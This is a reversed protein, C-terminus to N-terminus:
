LSIYTSKAYSDTMGAIYHAINRKLSFATHTPQFDEPLSEPNELYYQFLTEIIEAGEANKKLVTSHQYLNTFLTKRLDNLSNRLDNSIAILPTKLGQVDEISTIDHKKINSQTTHITDNVLRTLLHSLILGHLKKSDVGTYQNTVHLHSEQYLPSLSMLMDTSLINAYLGDDIDHSTYAIEDALNVLQSELTFVFSEDFNRINKQHKLLGHRVETSLNLGNFHPYKKELSDIITLSHRNHEFGGEEEMLKNLVKEGAHGFPTHGLDHALAITESLDENLFLLRSMHRAIQAVELTHTLRTRYHDSVTSIFVQTKHKLRRFAKSHIVRDRDRQFCTRTESLPEPVLRGKSTASKCALSSLTEEERAEFFPRV